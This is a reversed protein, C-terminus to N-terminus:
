YLYDKKQTIKNLNLLIKLNSTVTLFIKKGAEVKFAQRPQFNHKKLLQDVVTVSVAYGKQMINESIEPRSLNTWKITENMPSGATHEKIVELFADELGKTTDLILKRGAGSQRIRTSDNSLEANLEQLGRTITRDGCQLISRIYTVGGYGM